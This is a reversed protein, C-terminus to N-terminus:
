KCWAKIQELAWKPRLSPVEHLGPELSVDLGEIQQAVRMSYETNVYRDDTAFFIKIGGKKGM